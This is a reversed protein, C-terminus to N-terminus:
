AKPSPRQVDPHSALGRALDVGRATATVVLFDAGSDFSVFGQDKLWSLETVVQDRSSALGLGGLVDQLIAANGTYEPIAELHRLIALRKHKRMTAAYDSM